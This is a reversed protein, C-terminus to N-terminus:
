KILSLVADKVREGPGATLSWPSPQRIIHLPGRLEDVEYGTEGNEKRRFTLTVTAKGVRMENVTMQPLWDPLWPDLFLVDLPAYPYIGLLAQIVTLPASASWAQPCDSNPYLAPFPHRDDRQHGAFVEPLRFNLFLAATEFISRALTWMQRHLGYRAFAFVFVANEVPWVTGRHYAFPNYAPHESSLTRIGWGSFMDARMMRDAVRPVREAHVIGSALCHGPDSAVSRVLHKKSDLAMAFYGEEDMWFKENFRKRLEEADRFYKAALDTEGLWWLLESFHLKSVYVFAQMECTGLPDQVQTGKPYVIADDSDKWGQNKEGQESRTKYEYFGDGDLDGYKDAWQLSRIAIDVYPRVLDKDGTWHWLGSLVVPLYISGTIGGYYRGHPDFNLASLPRTHVEHVIKGPQEDRWDDIKTGQYRALAGLAGRSMETALIGSEWASTLSDRGFLAVYTPLGAATVWADGQDLDYLRLAALDHRSRELTRLVADTLDDRQPATFRTSERLFADRKVDWETHPHDFPRCGYILPLIDGEVHPLWSLCAHWTGHPPLHVAFSIKGQSYEPASTAHDITLLIGRHLRSIGHDGQHHWRHEVRYDFELEWSGQPSQRWDVTLEGKQKREGETEQPDAFDAELELQLTFSTDIQTHNTLDVDEHMGDGVFRSLRLEITQQTPNCDHTDTDKCNPPAAIYYALLSHQEVMSLGAAEPARGNILWRYKSLMRTQYVWLGHKGPQSISGDPATALVTRSQSAYVTNNRPQLQILSDRANLPM